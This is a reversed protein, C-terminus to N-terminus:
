AKQKPTENAFLEQWIQAPTRKKGTLVKTCWEEMEPTLYMGNLAGCIMFGALCEEMDSIQKFQTNM